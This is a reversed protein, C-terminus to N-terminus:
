GNEGPNARALRGMANATEWVDVYQEFEEAGSRGIDAISDSHQVGLMDLFSYGLSGITDFESFGAWVMADGVTQRTCYEEVTPEAKANTSTAMKLTSTQCM